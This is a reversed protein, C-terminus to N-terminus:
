RDRHGCQEDINKGVKPYFYTGTVREGDRLLTVEIKLSAITGRFYFKEGSTAAGSVPVDQAPPTANSNANQQGPAPQKRCAGLASFTLVILFILLGRTKM